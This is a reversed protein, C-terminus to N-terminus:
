DLQATPQARPWRQQKSVAGVTACVQQASTSTDRARAPSCCCCDCAAAQMLLNRCRSANHKDTACHSTSSSVSSESKSLPPSHQINAPSSILRRSHRTNMSRPDSACRVMIKCRYICPLWHTVKFTSMQHRGRSTHGADLRSWCAHGAASACAELLQLNM